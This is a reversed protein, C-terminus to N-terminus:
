SSVSAGASTRSILRRWDASRHLRHCPRSSPRRWYANVGRNAIEHPGSMSRSDAASARTLGAGVPLRVQGLVAVLDRSTARSNGSAM